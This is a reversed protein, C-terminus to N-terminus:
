FVFSLSPILHASMSVQIRIWLSIVPFKKLTPRSSHAAVSSWRLTQIMHPNVGHHSPTSKDCDALDDQPLRGNVHNTWEHVFVGRVIRIWRIVMCWRAGRILMHWTRSKDNCNMVPRLSYKYSKQFIINIEWIVGKTNKHSALMFLTWVEISLLLHPGNSYLVM